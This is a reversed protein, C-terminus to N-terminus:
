PIIWTYFCMVVEKLLTTPKFTSILDRISSKLDVKYDKSSSKVTRLFTTNYPDRKPELSMGGLIQTM